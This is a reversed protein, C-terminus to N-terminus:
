IRGDAYARLIEADRRLGAAIEFAQPNAARGAVEWARAFEDKLGAAAVVGGVKCVWQRCEPSCYRRRPDGRADARGLRPM